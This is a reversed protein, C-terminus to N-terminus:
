YDGATCAGETIEQLVKKFFLAEFVPNRSLTELEMCLLSKETGLCALRPPAAQNEKVM